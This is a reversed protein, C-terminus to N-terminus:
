PDSGPTPTERDPAGADIGLLAAVRPGHASGPFARFFQNARTRADDMRGLQALAAIAIVEREQVLAGSPFRTADRETLDLARQPDSRSTREAEELLSVETDNAPEGADSGLVGAGSTRAVPPRDSAERTTAM